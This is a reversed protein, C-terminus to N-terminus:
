IVMFAPVFRFLNPIGHCTCAQSWNFLLDKVQSESKNKELSM